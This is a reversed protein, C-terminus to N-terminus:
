CPLWLTVTTGKDPASKIEVGGGHQEVIQKVIPLGLGVGFGKTSYLPEFVKEIDGELIGPGNDTVRIELRSNAIISEVIILKERSGFGTENYESLAQCANEVINVICRRFSESDIMIEAASNLRRTFTFGKWIDEGLLAELWDDIKTLKLRLNRKRLFELLEDIIADCRIINREARDLSNEIGTVKGKVRERVTYISSRITGLPNRLEHSVVAILEGLTAMKEKKRLQEQFAKRESIDRFVLVVGTIDGANNRVPAGSKDIPIRTGDRAVLIKHDILSVFNGEKLVRAVPCEVEKGTEENVIHLIKGIPIGEADKQTWGTLREAVPNMFVINAETDAAIVADGIGNLTASLNEESTRLSQESRQLSETMTDFMGAFRGLEDETQLNVRYDLKGESVLNTAKTLKSISGLITKLIVMTVYVIVLASLIIIGIGILGGVFFVTHLKKLAIVVEDLENDVADDLLSLLEEDILPELREQLLSLADEHKGAQNLSFCQDSLEAAISYIRKTEKAVLVDDDEGPIGIENGMESSEEWEMIAEEAEVAHKQFQKWDLKKDSFIVDVVEKAGRVIHSRVRDAAVFDNLAAKAAAIQKYGKESVWPIAGLNLLLSTYSKEMELLEDRVVDDVDDFLIGDVLPEVEEEVQLLAEKTKGTEVLRFTEKMLSMSSDYANGIKKIKEVDHTEEEWGSEVRGTSLSLWKDLAEKTKVGYEIFREKEGTKYSIMYDLSEKFQRNLEARVIVGMKLGNLDADLLNLQFRTKFFIAGMFGAVASLMTLIIIALITIRAKISM